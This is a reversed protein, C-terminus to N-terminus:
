AAATTARGFRERYLSPSLHTHRKFLDRFFAVDDYGVALSVEQVTMRDEELMPKSAEIRLRQLYGLPTEGTAQKFRRLFTRPTMALEQSLEDIDVEEPFHNRLWAEARHITADGHPAGIPLVAFSTQYIRPMQLVLSKAVEIATQRDCLKEVLYLALDIASYLGGGCFIGGDETIALHPRWTVMPYRIAFDEAIAWHTTGTRGDLLGAEALLAVGTCVGAIKTGGAYLRRLWDLCAKNAEILEAVDFGATPVFVLDTRDIEELAKDPVLHTPGAGDVPLGDVSVSTIRFRPAPPQGTCLNWMYGAAHFIEIPMLSTSVYGGRCYLVTVDLMISCGETKKAV